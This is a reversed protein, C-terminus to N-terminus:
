SLMCNVKSMAFQLGLWSPLVIEPPTTLVTPVVVVTLTRTTPGGRSKLTM